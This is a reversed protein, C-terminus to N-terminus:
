KPAPANEEKPTTEEKPPPAKKTEPSSIPYDGKMKEKPPPTAKDDQCAVFGSGLLVILVVLIFRKM